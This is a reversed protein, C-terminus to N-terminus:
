VRIKDIIIREIEEIKLKFRNDVSILDEVTKISYIITSHHRGGILSGIESLDMKTYKRLFYCFISRAESIQSHRKSSLVEEFPIKTYESVSTSIALQFKSRIIGKALERNDKDLGVYIFPNM